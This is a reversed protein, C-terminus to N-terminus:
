WQEFIKETDGIDRCFAPGRACGGFPSVASLVFARFGFAALFTLHHGGVASHREAGSDATARNRLGADSTAILAVYAPTHTMPERRDRDRMTSDDHATKISM